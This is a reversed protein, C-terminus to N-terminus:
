ERSQAISSLRNALNQIKEVQEGIESSESKQMDEMYSVYSDIEDVMDRVTQPRGPRRFSLELEVNAKETLEYRGDERVKITGEDSMKKLLPYISGPSPRWWGRTMVEIGDMIEVGNKPSASLLSVVM